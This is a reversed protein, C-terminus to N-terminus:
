LVTCDPIPPPPAKRKRSAVLRQVFTLEDTPRKDIKVYEIRAVGDVERIRFYNICYKPVYVQPLLGWRANVREFQKIWTGTNVVARGDVYRISPAHTHGYVFVAVKPDEEFVRRAAALYQEEKQGTLESPSVDLGFRKAARQMDRLVFYGPIALILLEILIAANITLVFQVANGFIGLSELVRNNLFLNTATVGAAELGAGILVFVTLGFLLLFPLLIWRLWPSMEKYFYNSWVWHPVDETPYVSQVDKLWNYRGRDSLQGAGGVMNSTIYYGIPQAYPNGYDPMRNAADHQNGHEIWIRSGELDRTISADQELHVNYQALFPIFEPYCALEYDHNGPLLTIRIKEGARQFADFIRPFQDALVDMKESGDVKTFEWLGFADGVIVLEVDEDVRAALGELFAVLEDEFECVGLAEDGGIHLDSIFYYNRTPGPM